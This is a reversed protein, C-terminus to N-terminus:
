RRCAGDICIGGDICDSTSRCRQLPTAEQQGGRAPPENRKESPRATGEALFVRLFLLASTDIAERKASTQAAAGNSYGVQLEVGLAVAPLPIWEGGLAGALRWTHSSLQTSSLWEYEVRGGLYARTGPLASRLALLGLGAHGVSDRAGPVRSYGLGPEVRLAGFDLPFLLRPVAGAPGLAAGVGIRSASPAAPPVEGMASGSGLLALAAAAARWRVRSGADPGRWGEPEIGM